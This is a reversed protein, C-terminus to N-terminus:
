KAGAAGKDLSSMVAETMQDITFSAPRQSPPYDKFSQLFPAVRSSAYSIMYANKATWDYYQDSVVDAREYPDMRLNFAKPVRLCTFPNAWVQFGGPQRQECFVFKWDNHRMAVLVGDDNFYFFDQRPGTNTQGTLYPMFNYGDLHVKFSKGGISAGKLLREKIDSDGAAALLTPFWDLGSIMTTSVTNPKIRGPWRIIAPVRFAGEWNTDKESRFPTTAADPWSFQNPGNDTSYIVITNDAVKLDDLAKLLKGVHGDHEIMGDAYENGPMGSQGRMSERVHTFVHMRTTNMWVFFPKDAKVQKDMFGIAAATTEDDITEMRKRNLPGTDEVKGDAFSRIVGRPANAKVWAQDNKPYYPREPEEEANLHYLNGFFEDFGHATPLYENRDGLHNKGFQGTAYGLPKLAQAITVNQAQLGVPAGPVGVKLLGTRLGVEGTIFTSRGATCSNEGYYDTFLMGEQAIRDINPTRYGVVGHSYASINTQGVDDGFIVLINPKKGSTAPAALAPASAAAVPASTAVPPNERGPAPAAAAPAPATAPAQAAPQQAKPPTEKKDCGTVAVVVAAVALMALRSSRGRVMREEVRLM